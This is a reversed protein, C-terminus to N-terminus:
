VVNLEHSLCVMGWIQRGYLFALIERFGRGFNWRHFADFLRFIFPQFVRLAVRRRRDVEFSRRHVPLLRRYFFGFFLKFSPIHREIWRQTVFVCSCLGSLMRPYRGLQDRNKLLIRKTVTNHLTPHVSGVWIEDWAVGGGGLVVMHSYSLYM